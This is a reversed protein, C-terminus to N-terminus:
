GLKIMNGRGGGGLGDRSYSDGGWGSGSFVDTQIPVGLLTSLRGVLARGIHRLGEDVAKGNGAFSIEELSKVGAAEAAQGLAGATGFIQADVASLQGLLNTIIVEADTDLAGWIGELRPNKYRFVSPFGLYYRVFTQQTATLLPEGVFSGGM